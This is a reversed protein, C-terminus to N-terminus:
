SVQTHGWEGYGSKAGIGEILIVHCLDVGGASAIGEGISLVKIVEGTKKLKVEDGNHLKLAQIKTM